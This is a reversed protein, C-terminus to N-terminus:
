DHLTLYTLQGTRRWEWEKVLAFLAPVVVLAYLTATVLGFVYPLALPRMLDSGVGTAILVPFLGLMDVVVTMLVPRIRLVAGAYVAKEIDQQTIPPMPPAPAVVGAPVGPMAADPPPPATLPPAAGDPLAPPQRSRVLDGLAQNLYVVVLVGTEMAVGFLAIFGVAVSVSFNVDFLHLSYVGGILALPIGSLIILVERMAKFTFYLIFCIVLLVGPIILQLRKQASVQNEYQGSWEIYYGQPLRPFHAAVREKAENVVSGMDRGRVNFLVTGRLLANESNIMAPGETIRLEAVASLPVPGYQATQVPVRGLEQLNNRFDQALRVNITFRERKEVTTGIRAGGLATEILVGVDDVDLGYRALEHRRM